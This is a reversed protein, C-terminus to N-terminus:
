GVLKELGLRQNREWQLQLRRGGKVEVIFELGNQSTLSKAAAIIDKNEQQM